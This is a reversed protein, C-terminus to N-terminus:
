GVLKGNAVDWGLLKDRAAIVVRHPGIAIFSNNLIGRPAFLDTVDTRWREKGSEDFVAISWTMDDLSRMSFLLTAVLDGYSALHVVRAPAVDITRVDSLPKDVPALVLTHANWDEKGQSYSYWIRDATAGAIHMLRRDGTAYEATGKRDLTHIRSEGNSILRGDGRSIWEDRTEGLPSPHNLIADVEAASATIRVVYIKDESTVYIEDPTRAPLVVKTRLGPLILPLSDVKDKSIRHLFDSSSGPVSGFAYLTGDQAFCFHRHPLSWTATAQMRPQTM